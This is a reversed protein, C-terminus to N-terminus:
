RKTRRKSARIPEKTPAKTLVKGTLTENHQFRSGGPIEVPAVLSTRSGLYVNDGIVTANKKFGNFNVTVSGTGISTREGIKADGIYSLHLIDSEGGIQSRTIEVFTGVRAGDGIETDPRISAYPGVQVDNGLKAQDVCCFRLKCDSGLTSESVQVHPGIECREGIECKGQLITFPQIITDRGIRVQKDIYTTAPDIVTVGQEM